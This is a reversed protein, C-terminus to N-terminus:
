GDAHTLLGTTEMKLTSFQEKKKDLSHFGVTVNERISVNCGFNQAM